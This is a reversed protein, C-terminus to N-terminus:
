NTKAPAIAANAAAVQASLEDLASGVARLGKDASAMASESNHVVMDAESAVSGPKAMKPKAAFPNKKKLSLAGLQIGSFTALVHIAAMQAANMYSPISANLSQALKYIKKAQDKKLNADNVLTHAQMMKRLAMEAGGNAQEYNAENALKFSLAVMQKATAILTSAELNYHAVIEATRLQLKFYPEAAKAAAEAAADKPANAMAALKALLEKWYAAAEAELVKVKAEAAAHASDYALAYTENVMEKVEVEVARADVVAKDIAEKTKLVPPVYPLSTDTSSTAESAHQTSKKAAEQARIQSTVSRAETAHGSNRWAYERASRAMSEPIWPNHMDGGIADSSEVPGKARRFKAAASQPGLLLFVFFLARAKTRRQMSDM